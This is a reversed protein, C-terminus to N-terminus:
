SALGCEGKETTHWIWAMCASGICACGPPVILQDPKAAMVVRNHPPTPMQGVGVLRSFPCWKKGAEEETFM